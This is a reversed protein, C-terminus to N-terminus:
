RLYGIYLSNKNVAIHYTPQPSHVGTPWVLTATLPRGRQLVYRLFEPSIQGYGYVKYGVGNSNHPDVPRYPNFLKITCATTEDGCQLKFIIICDYGAGGNVGNTCLGEFNLFVKDLFPRQIPPVKFVYQASAGSRRLWDWGAIKACNQSTYRVPKCVRAQYAWTATAVVVFVVVIAFVFLRQRM